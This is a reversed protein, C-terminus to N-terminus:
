SPDTALLSTVSVSVCVSVFLVKVDGVRVLGASPVAVAVVILPRVIDVVALEVISIASRFVRVNLLVRVKLPVSPDVIFKPFPPPAPAWTAYEEFVRAENAVVVEV